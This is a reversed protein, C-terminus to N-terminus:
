VYLAVKEIVLFTESISGSGISEVMEYKDM